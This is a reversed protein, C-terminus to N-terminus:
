EKVYKMNVPENRSIVEAEVSAGTANVCLSEVVEIIRASRFVGLIRDM